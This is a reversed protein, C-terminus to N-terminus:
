IIIGFRFIDRSFGQAFFFVGGLIGSSRFFSSSSFKGTFFHSM